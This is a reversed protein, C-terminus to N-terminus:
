NGRPVKLFRHPSFRGAKDTYRRILEEPLVTKDLEYLAMVADAFRQKAPGLFEAHAEKIKQAQMKKRLALAKKLEADSMDLLNKGLDVKGAM